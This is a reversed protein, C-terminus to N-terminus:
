HIQIVGLPIVNNCMCSLRKMLKPAHMMGGHSNPKITLNTQNREVDDNQCSFNKQEGRMVRFQCKGELFQNGLFYASFNM